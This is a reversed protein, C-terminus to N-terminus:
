PHNHSSNAFVVPFRLPEYRKCNDKASFLKWRIIRAYLKALQSVCEWHFFSILNSANRNRSYQYGICQACWLFLIQEMSNRLSNRRTTGHHSSWVFIMSNSSRKESDRERDRERELECRTKENSTAMSFMILLKQNTTRRSQTHGCKTEVKEECLEHTSEFNILPGIGIERNRFGLQGISLAHSASNTNLPRGYCYFIINIIESKRREPGSRQRKAENQGIWLGDSLSRNGYISPFSDTSHTLSRSIPGVFIGVRM